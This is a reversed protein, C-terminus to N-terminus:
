VTATQTGAGMGATNATINVVAPATTSSLSPVLWAKDSTVSLGTLTGGGGNTVNVSTAAPAAGGVMGDLSVSATSFSIVPAPPPPQETGGSCSGSLILALAAAARAVRPAHRMFQRTLYTAGVDANREAAKWTRPM